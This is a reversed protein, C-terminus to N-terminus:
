ATQELDSVPDYQAAPIPLSAVPDPDELKGADDPTVDIGDVLPVSMWFYKDLGIEPEFGDSPIYGFIV